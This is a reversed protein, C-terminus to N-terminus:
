KLILMHKLSIFGNKCHRLELYYVLRYMQAPGMQAPGMQSNNYVHLDGAEHTALSISRVKAAHAAAAQAQAAVASQSTQQQQQYGQHYTPDLSVRRYKMQGRDASKSRQANAAMLTYRDLTATGGAASMGAAAMAAASTLGGAGPTTMLKKAARPESIARVNPNGQIPM